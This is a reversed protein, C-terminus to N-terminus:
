LEGVLKGSYEKAITEVVKERLPQLEATSINREPNQYYLAFTFNRQYSDKLEVRQVWDHTKQISDLVRGIKVKSSLTFTMDEIIASTKAPEQYQPYREVTQLLAQYDVQAGVYGNALVYVQGLQKFETQKQSQGLLPAQQRYFKNATEKEAGIKIQNIYFQALLSELDTKFQRYNKTTVLGLKLSQDPLQESQPHYLSALEFVSLQEQQPNKKIAQALSPLLSRRLYTHDETLPNLLKLHSKLQYGSEQALKESVASYSYIEQWGIDALFNKLREELRFNANRPQQTPIPTAMLKSPLNHYGYIRAIEEIIDAPIQLDDRFTPPQVVFETTEDQQNITVKCGLETLIQKVETPKLTVGLYDHIRKQTLYVPNLKRENPFQDYLESAIKAGTLQQYLEAGKLLVTKGLHPDVNKENLQAAVTRIAHSMSAFRVKNADLNEIWFLINKTDPGVGTNQTGKIAPLDIIEGAKNEFVIEGGLTQYKEGDLTVFKKGAEAKTVIIEGGKDMVKDYDFAHCPHGLDHTVYNSIDVMSNHIQQDIQRLRNAMWEPTPSDDVNKLIVTLVRNCLDPDNKIEPLPLASETELEIPELKIPKLEAKIGARNLIVAAERAIGRVSMSDVRNTTVEIDYVQDGEQDYIREVSPGSLSLYKQIQDPTAETDLHDMLWQHPILINM